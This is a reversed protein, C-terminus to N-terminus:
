TVLMLCHQLHWQMSHLAHYQPLCVHHSLLLPFFALHRFIILYFFGVSFSFSPIQNDAFDAAWWSSPSNIRCTRILGWSDHWMDGKGREYEVEPM